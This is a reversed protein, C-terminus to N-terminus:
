DLWNALTETHGDVSLAQGSIKAAQESALFLVTAAIDEPTVFSRLSSQRLYVNRIEDSSVGREAADQAIVRDIRPGSVCGPCVANVRIQHPGLEMAWTKTLGILGWKSAAYPSRMPTGFLGASSSMNIISGGGSKKLLPVALRTMYFAGSLDVAICQDWADTEIDDVAATPGSIGANNVLIDLRGYQATFEAFVRAVDAVNSIDARTATAAPNAALFGAIADPSADCIHVKAQDELFAEAISRGIGAAAGSILVTKNTMAAVISWAVM